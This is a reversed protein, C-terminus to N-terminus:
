WWDVCKWAADGVCYLCLVWNCSICSLACGPFKKKICDWDVDVRTGSKWNLDKLVLEGEKESLQFSRQYDVGNHKLYIAVIIYGVKNEITWYMKAKDNEVYGTAMNTSYFGSAVDKGCALYIMKSDKQALLDGQGHYKMAAIHAVKLNDLDVDANALSGMMLAVILFIALKKM